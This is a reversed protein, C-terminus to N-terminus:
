QATALLPTGTGQFLTQAKDWVRQGVKAGIVGSEEDGKRFHIGGYLRSMAAEEAAHTFTDWCLTVDQAPVLGPEVESAGAAFTDCAGFADSGTFLRLVTASAMSFASHGSTYEAFPPTRYNTPQYPMWMDADIVGTGLGPGRWATVQQGALHWRIATIPRAYDYHSKSNWVAISADMVANATLFFMKIDEDLTNADRRSVWQAIEHFHGPPSSSTPGDAWFESIVKTSDTLNQQLVLLEQIQADFEPSGIAAPPPPLFEDPSQM